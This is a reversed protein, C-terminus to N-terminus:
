MAEGRHVHPSLESTEEEELLSVLGIPDPGGGQYSKM